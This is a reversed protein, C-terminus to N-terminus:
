LARDGAAGAVACKGLRAAAGYLATYIPVDYRRPLCLPLTGVECLRCSGSRCCLFAGRIYPRRSLRLLIGQTGSVAEPTYALGPM